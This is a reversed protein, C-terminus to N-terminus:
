LGDRELGRGQVQKQEGAEYRVTALVRRVILANMYGPTAVTKMMLRIWDVAPNSQSLAQAAQQLSAVRPYIDFEM